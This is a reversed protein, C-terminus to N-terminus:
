PISGPKGTSSVVTPSVSKDIVGLGELLPKRIGLQCQINHHVWAHVVRVDGLESCPQGAFSHECATASTMLIGKCGMKYLCWGARHGPDGWEVVFQGADYHARRPCHDHILEGHLFLPRGLEDTAPMEHFTLYHVIVAAISAANAPCGSLNLV